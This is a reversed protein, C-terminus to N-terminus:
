VLSKLEAVVAELNADDYSLGKEDPEVETQYSQDLAALEDVLVKRTSTWREKKENYQDRYEQELSKLRQLEERLEKQLKQGETLKSTPPLVREPIVVGADELAYIYVKVKDQKRKFYDNISSQNKVRKPM